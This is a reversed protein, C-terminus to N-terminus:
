KKILYFDEFLEEIHGDTWIPPITNDISSQYWDYLFQKSVAIGSGDELTSNIILKLDNIIKDYEIDIGCMYDFSVYNAINERLWECAKDITEQRIANILEEAVEVAKAEAFETSHGKYHHILKNSIDSCLDKAQEEITKAM